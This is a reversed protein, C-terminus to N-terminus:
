SARPVRLRLRRAVHLPRGPCEVLKASRPAVLVMFIAAPLIAAGADLTSYGLVNQLFQQGVFMAGMLSGFVIIGACAAVWFSAGAPSTCTTCRTRRADNGSSSPSAPRSPSSSWGPWWRERTPCRARLQDGPHPRRGARGVPRRRPQRSSRDDRQRAGARASRWARLAVVALPLTILFVSGWWFHELLAGAVLPGLSAIAGGAGVVPRDVENAGARVVPRHDAGPDDPLGHRGVARRPHPRRHARRDVPRLGGGPLGPHLAACASSLMLKRGYRDGLAGLYLVSAALGLSYGVAVLNLATQSADFAKGIDPLAVNAVALNLNAVAAVLILSVLVMGARRPREATSAASGAPTMGAGLSELVVLGRREAAATARAAYPGQSPISGSRLHTM